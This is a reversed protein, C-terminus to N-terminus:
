VISSYPNEVHETTLLLLGFMWRRAYKIQYGPFEFCGHVSLCARMMTMLQLRKHLLQSPTWARSAKPSFCSSCSWAGIKEKEGLPTWSILGGGWSTIEVEVARVGPMNACSRRWKQQHQTCMWDVSRFSELKFWSYSCIIQRYNTSMLMPKECVADSCAKSGHHQTMGYYSCPKECVFTWRHCM